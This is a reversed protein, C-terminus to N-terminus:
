AEMKSNRNAWVYTRKLVDLYSSAKGVSQWEGKPLLMGAVDNGELIYGRIADTLEVNAGKKGIHSIVGDDLAYVAALALNSKPERPKEELNNVSYFGGGRPTCEAIGYETPNDVRMLALTSSFNSDKLSELIRADLIIGDGANLLFRGNINKSGALVAGGFGMCDKKQYEILAEPRESRLYDYTVRDAPDLVVTIDGIGVNKMRDIICDIMPRIVVEGERVDYVPLMVKRFSRGTKARIGLGAATILGEMIVM